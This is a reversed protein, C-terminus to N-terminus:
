VYIHSFKNSMPFITVPVQELTMDINVDKLYTSFVDFYDKVQFCANTAANWELSFINNQMASIFIKGVLINPIQIYIWYKLILYVSGITQLYGYISPTLYRRVYGITCM